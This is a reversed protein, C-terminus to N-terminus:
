GRRARWARFEHASARLDQARRRASWGDPGLGSCFRQELTVAMMDLLEDSLIDYPDITVSPCRPGECAADTQMPATMLLESAVEPTPVPNIPSASKEMTKKAKKAKKM